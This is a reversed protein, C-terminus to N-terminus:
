ILDRRWSMGFISSVYIALFSSGGINHPSFQLFFMLSLLVALEKRDRTKLFTFVWLLVLSIFAFIGNTMVMDIFVNHSTVYDRGYIEILFSNIVTLDFGIGFLIFGNLNRLISAWLEPRGTLIDSLVLIKSIDQAWEQIFYILAVLGFVLLALKQRRGLKIFEYLVLAAWAGRSYSVLLGMVILIRILIKTSLRFKLKDLFYWSILLSLALINPEFLMSSSSRLLLVPFKEDFKNLEFFFPVELIGLVAIISMLVGLFVPFILYFRKLSHSRDIWEPLLIFSWYGVLIFSMLKPIGGLTLFYLSNIAGSYVVLFLYLYFIGYTSPIGKKAVISFTVIASLTLVLIYWIIYSGSERFVDLLSLYSSIIIIKSLLRM